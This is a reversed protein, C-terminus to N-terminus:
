AATPRRKVSRRAERLARLAALDYLREGCRRCEEVVVGKVVVARRDRRTAIDRVVRRM